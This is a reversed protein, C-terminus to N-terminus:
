NKIVVTISQLRNQYQNSYVAEIEDIDKHGERQRVEERKPSALKQYKQMRIDEYSIAKKIDQHHSMGRLLSNNSRMSQMKMQQQAKEAKELQSMIEQM